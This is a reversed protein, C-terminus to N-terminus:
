EKNELSMDGVSVKNGDLDSWHGANGKGEFDILSKVKDSIDVGRTWFAVYRKREDQYMPRISAPLSSFRENLLKQVIYPVTKKDDLVYRLIALAMKDKPLISKGKELAVELLKDCETAPMNESYDALIRLLRKYLRVDVAENIQQSIKNNKM